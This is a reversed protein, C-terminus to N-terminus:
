KSRGTSTSLQKGQESSVGKLAHRKIYAGTLPKGGAGVVGAARFGKAIEDAIDSQSPYLDKVLQRQIIENAQVVALMKWTPDSEMPTPDTGFRKVSVKKCVYLNNEVAWDLWPITIGKGHALTIWVHPEASEHLNIKREIQKYRKRTEYLLTEQQATLFVEEGYCDVGTPMRAGHEQDILYEFPISRRGSFTVFYDGGQRASRDPDIELFLLTAEDISWKGANLWDKLLKANKEDVAYEIATPGVVNGEISFIDFGLGSGHVSTVDNECQCILCLAM